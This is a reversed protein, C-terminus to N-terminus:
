ERQRALDADSAASPESTEALPAAYAGIVSVRQVADRSELNRLAMDDPGLFGDVEAVHM